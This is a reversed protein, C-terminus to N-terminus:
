KPPYIIKYTYTFENLYYEEGMHKPQIHALIHLLAKYVLVSPFSNNKSFLSSFSFSM